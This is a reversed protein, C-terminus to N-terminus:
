HGGIKQWLTKGQTPQPWGRAEMCNYLVRDANRTDSYDAMRSPLEGQGYRDRDGAFVSDRSDDVNRRTKMYDDVQAQCEARDRDYKAPNSDRKASSPPPQSPLMDCAAIAMGAALVILLGIARSM